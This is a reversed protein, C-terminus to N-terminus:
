PEISHAKWRTTTPALQSGLHEGPATRRRSSSRGLAAPRRSSDRDFVHHTRISCSPSAESPPFLMSLPFARRNIGGRTRAARTPCSGGPALTGAPAPAAMAYRPSRFPTGPGFAALLFPARAGNRRREPPGQRERKGTALHRRPATTSAGSAM